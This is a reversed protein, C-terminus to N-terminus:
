PSVPDEGEGNLVAVLLIAVILAPLALYGWVEGDLGGGSDDDDQQQSTPESGQPPQAAVPAAALSLAAVAALLKRM